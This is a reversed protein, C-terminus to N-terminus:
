KKNYLLSKIFVDDVMSPFSKAQQPTLGANYPILKFDGSEQQVYLKPFLLDGSGPAFDMAVNYNKTRTQDDKVFATSYADDDTYAHALNTTGFPSNKIAFTVDDVFLSPPTKGTIDTFHKETIPKTIVSGDSKTVQLEYSNNGYRSAAPNINIQFKSKDDLAAKTLDEYGSDIGQYDSAVSALSSQLHERQEAKDAYLIVAGPSAVSSLSKYYEERLATTKKYRDDKILDIAKKLESNQRLPAGGHGFILSFPNADSYQFTEDGKLYNYMSTFGLTGYKKVLRAKAKEADQKVLDSDFVGPVAGNEWDHYTYKALDIVDQKSLTVKQKRVKGMSEAEGGMAIELTVPSINAKSLDLPTFGPALEKLKASENDLAKKNIGIRTGLENIAAFDSAYEAGLSQGKTANYRDTAKQGQLVVYDNYSMGVKKAYANIQGKMEEATFPKNTAPNIKGSNKAMWDALAVKEYLGFQANMDDKLGKEFQDAFYTEADIDSLPRNRFGGSYLGAGTPNGKEDVLGKEFLAKWREQAMQETDHRQQYTFKDKEFQFKNAELKMKERDMMVEVGPNKLYKTYTDKTSFASSMSDLYNNTYISGKIGEVNGSRVSEEISAKRKAINLDINASAEQLADIQDQSGGKTKLELIKDQIADRKLLQDKQFDMFGDELMKSVDDASKGRMEYRGTIGLQRYDNADLGNQFASLIKNKDKGKLLTEAMVDNYQLKGNILVPNGNADTQFLQQVITSDEGVSKAIEGLKKFVDVHPVYQGSFTVPRGDSSKLGSNLYSSFQTTYDLENDPTLTGKKREEEMFDRNKKHNAASSVAAQVFPDKVIQNTMGSVSNVLQFNSFDGAAVSTLNNGLENLKSQLYQKDVPRLVDLGAVNDIQAQIKQVNEEYKQQKYMGVQVMADVPLTPVFPNFTPIQDTFSAM